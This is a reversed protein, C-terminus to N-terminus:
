SKDVSTSALPLASEEEATPAKLQGPGPKPGVTPGSTPASPDPYDPALGPLDYPRPEAGTGWMDGYIPVHRLDRKSPRELPPAPTREFARPEDGVPQPDAAPAPYPDPAVAPAPGPPPQQPQPEPAPEIPPPPTTAPEPTM